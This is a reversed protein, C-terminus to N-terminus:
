FEDAILGLESKINDLEIHREEWEQIADGLEEKVHRYEDLLPVSKGKDHYVSPDSLLIGIEKEKTELESIRNELYSVKEEFPRLRSRIFNRKEAKEKRLTKKSDKIEQAQNTEENQQV